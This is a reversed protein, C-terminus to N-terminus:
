PKLAIDELSPPRATYVDVPAFAIMNGKLKTKMRMEPPATTFATVGRSKKILPVGSDILAAETPVVPHTFWQASALKCVSPTMGEIGLRM